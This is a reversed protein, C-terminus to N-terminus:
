FCVARIQGLPPAFPIPVPASVFPVGRRRLTEYIGDVDEGVFAMRPIALHTMQAYRRGRRGPTKGKVGGLFPAGEGGGGAWLCVDASAREGLDLLDGLDQADAFGTELLKTLGLTDGYFEASRELDTCNINIHFLRRVGPKAGAPTPFSTQVFEMVTGDPDR